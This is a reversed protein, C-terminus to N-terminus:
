VEDLDGTATCLAKRGGVHVAVSVHVQDRGSTDEAAPQRDIKAVAVARELSWLDQAVAAPRHRDDCPVEIAVPQGVQNGGLSPGKLTPYRHEQVLPRPVE